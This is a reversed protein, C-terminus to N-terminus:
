QCQARFLKLCEICRMGCGAALAQSNDRFAPKPGEINDFDFDPDQCINNCFDKQLPSCFNEPSYVSSQQLSTPAEDGSSLSM